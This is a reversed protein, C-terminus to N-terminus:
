MLQFQRRYETPTLGTARRFMAAMRQASQFGSREAVQDMSLGTQMLLERVREVRARSIAQLPSHGMADRFRREFVRRSIPAQRLLDRM